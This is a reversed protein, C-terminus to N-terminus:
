AETNAFVVLQVASHDKRKAPSFLVASLPVDRIGPGLAANEHAARSMQVMGVHRPM